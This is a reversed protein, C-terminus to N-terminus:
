RAGTQLNVGGDVSITLEPYKQKLTKIYELAGEYFPEGQYGIKAIAMCQVIDIYPILPYLNELPTTPNIAVGIKIADRVYPDIGELFNKFEDLNEFAEIHFIIRKPGLKTYVDFNEMGDAVMLDLEFDIEEWFPMGERENIINQFNFDDGGGTSFPWTRSPVFIGDCLDIQVLPVVGKVLAIKNKMDEYNKPLIAPIIEAM